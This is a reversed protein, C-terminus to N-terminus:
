NPSQVMSHTLLYSSAMKGDCVFRIGLLSIERNFSHIDDYKAKFIKWKVYKLLLHMEKRRLTLHTIAMSIVPFTSKKEQPFTHCMGRKLYLQMFTLMTYFLSTLTIYGVFSTKPCLLCFSYLVPVTFRGTAYLSTRTSESNGAIRFPNKFLTICDRNVLVYYVHPAQRQSVDLFIAIYMYLYYLILSPIKKKQGRARWM